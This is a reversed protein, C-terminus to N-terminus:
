VLAWNSKKEHPGLDRAAGRTTPIKNMMAHFLDVMNLHLMEEGVYWRVLKLEGWM